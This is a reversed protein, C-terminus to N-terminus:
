FTLRRDDGCDLATASFLWDAGSIAETKAETGIQIATIKVGVIGANQSDTVRGSITARFEQAAALSAILCLLLINKKM